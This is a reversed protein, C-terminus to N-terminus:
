WSSPFILVPVKSQRLVSEATSGMLLRRLGTRGLSAMAILDAGHETAYHVIGGAASPALDIDMEVEVNGFRPLAQVLETRAAAIEAENTHHLVGIPQAFGTDAMASLEPVIRLLTIRAGLRRAIDCAPEIARLSEASGDTTLLVHVRKPTPEVMALRALADDDDDNEDTARAM